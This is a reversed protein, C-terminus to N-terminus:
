LEVAHLQRVVSLNLHCSAAHRHRCLESALLSRVWLYVDRLSLSAPFSPFLSPLLRRLHKPGSM